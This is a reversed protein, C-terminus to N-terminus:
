RAARTAASALAERLARVEALADRHGKYGNGLGQERIRRVTAQRQYELYPKADYYTNMARMQFLCRATCDREVILKGTKIVQFRLFPAACNLVVIDVPQKLAGELLTGITLTRQFMEDVALNEPYLIAVDTDSLRHAKGQATSGFLYVAIIETQNDLAAQIRKIISDIAIQGDGRPSDQIAGSTFNSDSYNGIEQEVSVTATM